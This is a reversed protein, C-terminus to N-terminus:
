NFKSKEYSGGNFIWLKYILFNSIQAIFTIIIKAEYVNVNVKKVLLNMLILTIGLTFLNVSIFQILKIASEKRRSKDDFTWKKNLIFSNVIGTCYGIVQSGMYGAGFAENFITFMLFDILTNSAGVLSFRIIKKFIGSEAYDAARETMKM